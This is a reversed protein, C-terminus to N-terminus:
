PKEPVTTLLRETWNFVASESRRFIGQGAPLRGSGEARWQLSFQPVIGSALDASLHGSGTLTAAEVNDGISIPVSGAPSLDLETMGAASSGATRLTLRVRSAAPLGLQSSVGRVRTYAGDDGLRGEFWWASWEPLLWFPPTVVGKVGTCVWREDGECRWHDGAVPLGPLRAAPVVGPQEVRRFLLDYKRAGRRSGALFTVEVEVEFSDTWRTSSQAEGRTVAADVSNSFSLTRLWRSGPTLRPVFRTVPAALSAPALADASGESPLDTEVPESVEAPEASPSEQSRATSAATLSLLLLSLLPLSRM